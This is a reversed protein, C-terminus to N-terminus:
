YSPFRGGFTFVKRINFRTIREIDFPNTHLKRLFPVVDEQVNMYAKGGNISLCAKFCVDNSLMIHDEMGRRMLEKITVIQEERTTDVLEMMRSDILDIGFNDFTVNFGKKALALITDINALKAIVHNIVVRRNDVGEEELIKIAPDRNSGYDFHISLAAGTSKQARCAGRLSNEEERTMINSIGIEGIHGAHIYEGDAEVGKLIDDEIERAIDDASKKKMEEPLWAAKYYGCGMLVKVGTANSVKKIAAPERGIRENTMEVITDGGATAFKRVDDIVADMMTVDIDVDPGQHRIFLHEHPLALGTMEVPSMPGNVTLIKGRLFEKTYVNRSLKKESM